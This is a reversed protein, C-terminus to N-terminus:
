ASCFRPSRDGVHRSTCNPSRLRRKGNQTWEVRRCPGCPRRLPPWKGARRRPSQGQNGRLAPAPGRLDEVLAQPRACPETSLRVHKRKLYGTAPQPPATIRAGEGNGAHAVRPASSIAPALPNSGAIGVHRITTGSHILATRAPVAQCRTPQPSSHRARRGRFPGPSWLPWNGESVSKDNPDCMFSPEMRKARRFRSTMTVM